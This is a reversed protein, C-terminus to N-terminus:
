DRSVALQTGIGRRLQSFEAPLDLLSDIPCLCVFQIDQGVAPTKARNEADLATRLHPEATRQASDKQARIGLVQVWLLPATECGCGDESGSFIKDCSEDSSIFSVDDLQPQGSVVRLAVAHACLKTFGLVM